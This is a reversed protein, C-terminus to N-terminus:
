LLEILTYEVFHCSGRGVQYGDGADGAEQTLAISKGGVLGSFIPLFLQHDLLQIGNRTSMEAVQTILPINIRM